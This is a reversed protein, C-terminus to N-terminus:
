FVFKSTREVGIGEERVDLTGGGFGALEVDEEAHAGAHALGVGHQLGRALPDFFAHIHERADDLRMTAGFGGRQEFAHADQRAFFEFVAAERQLLKVDVGHERLPRLEHQHVLQCM